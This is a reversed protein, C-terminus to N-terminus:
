TFMFDMIVHLHREIERAKNREIIVFSVLIDEYLFTM